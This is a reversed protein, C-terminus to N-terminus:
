EPPGNACSIGGDCRLQRVVAQFNEIHSLTAAGGTGGAGEPSVHDAFLLSPLFPDPPLLPLLPPLFPLSGRLLPPLRPSVPFSRTSAAGDLGSSGLSPSKM